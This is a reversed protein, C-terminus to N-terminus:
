SEGLFRKLYGILANFDIPKTLYPISLNQLFNIVAKDIYASVVLISVDNGEEKIAKILDIGTLENLRIDVILVNFRIHHLMSLAEEASLAFFFMSNPAKNRFALRYLQRTDEEDDVVLIKYKYLLLEQIGARLLATAERQENIRERFHKTAPIHDLVSFASNKTSQWEKVTYGIIIITGVILTALIAISLIDM